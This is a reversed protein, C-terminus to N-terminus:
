MRQVRGLSARRAVQILVCHQAAVHLGTSGVRSASLKSPSTDRFVRDGEITDQSHDWVWQKVHGATARTCM